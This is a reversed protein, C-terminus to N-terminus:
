RAPVKECCRVQVAAGRVTPARPRERVARTAEAAEVPEDSFVAVFCEPGPTADLIWSEPTIGEGAPLRSSANGDRPILTQVRGRGDRELLLLYARGTRYRGMIRDGPACRDELPQAGAARSVILQFTDGGKPALDLPGPRRALVAALGGMLLGGVVGAVLRLAPRRAGPRPATAARARLLRLDDGRRPDSEFRRRDEAMEGQLRRCADCTAVHGRLKARAIWGLEGALARAWTLETPHRKM